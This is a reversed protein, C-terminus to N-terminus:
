SATPKPVHKHLSQHLDDPSLSGYHDPVDIEHLVQGPGPRLTGFPGPPSRHSSAHGAMSAVVNGKGDTVVTVKM